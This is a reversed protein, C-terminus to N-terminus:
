FDESSIQPAAVAVPEPNPPIAAVIADADPMTTATPTHALAMQLAAELTGATSHGISETYCTFEARPESMTFAHLEIKICVYENPFAAKLQNLAESAAIKNSM